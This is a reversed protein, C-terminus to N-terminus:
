VINYIIGLESLLDFYCVVWQEADRKTEFGDINFLEQYIDGALHCKVSFNRQRVPVQENSFVNLEITLAEDKVSLRVGMRRLASVRNRLCADVRDEPNELAQGLLRALALAGVTGGAECLYFFDIDEGKFYDKLLQLQIGPTTLWWEDNLFTVKLPTASFDDYVICQFNKVGTASGGSLPSQATSPKLAKKM